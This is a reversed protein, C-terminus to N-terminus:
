AMRSLVRLSRDEEKTMEEKASRTKDKFGLLHLVGHIMVRHMEDDTTKSFKVANEKVRDVSIFIDGSVTESGKESNDFTIIDTFTNHDLYQQNINLLYNDSCFIFNLDGVSRKRKAITKTIWEKLRTKNRLSYKVDESYFAIM